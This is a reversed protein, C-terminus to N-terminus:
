ARTDAPSLRLWQTTSGSRRRALHRMKRLVLSWFQSQNIQRFLLSNQIPRFLTTQLLLGNKRSMSQAMTVSASGTSTTTARIILRSQTGRSTLLLHSTSTISGLSTQRTKNGSFHSSTGTHTLLGNQGMLLAATISEAGRFGTAM